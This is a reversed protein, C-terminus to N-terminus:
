VKEANCKLLPFVARAVLAVTFFISRFSILHFPLLRFFCFTLYM